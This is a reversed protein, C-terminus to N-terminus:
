YIKSVNENQGYSKRGKKFGSEIADHLFHSQNYCPIIISVKEM